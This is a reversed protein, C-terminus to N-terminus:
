GRAAAEAMGARGAAAYRAKLAPGFMRWVLFRKRLASLFRRNLRHWAGPEGSLRTLTVRVRRLGAV